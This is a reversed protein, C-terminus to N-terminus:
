NRSKGNQKGKGSECISLFFGLFLGDSLDNCVEGLSDIPSVGFGESCQECVVGVEDHNRALVQFTSILDHRVMGSQKGAAELAAM